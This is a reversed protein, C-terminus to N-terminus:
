GSTVTQTDTSQNRRRRLPRLIFRQGRKAAGWSMDRMRRLGGVMATGMEYGFRYNFFQPNKELYDLMAQTAAALKEPDQEKQLDKLTKVQHLKLNTTFVDILVPRNFLKGLAEREEPTFDATMSVTEGDGTSVLMEFDYDEEEVQRGQREEEPILEEIRTMIESAAAELAQKKSKGPVNAQVPPIVDGVRMNLRPRALRTAAEFAGNVGGFGIPVVPAQAMYSLWAVGTRAPRSHSEWIGGEPFIGIVGGQKLVELALNLGKRDMNGRNIPIYGYPEFIWQFRTDLPIDSAGMMEVLFPAYLVMLAIETVDTHNGVLILPGKSPFNEVGKVTPRTFIGMLVRGLLRM